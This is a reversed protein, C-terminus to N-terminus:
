IERENKFKCIKDNITEYELISAKMKRATMFGTGLQGTRKQPGSYIIIFELKDIRGTGQWIMEQLTLKTAHWKQAVEQM